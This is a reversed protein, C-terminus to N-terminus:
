IRYYHFSISVVAIEKTFVHEPSYCLILFDLISVEHCKAGCKHNCKLDKQCEVNCHPHGRKRCENCNGQCEHQCDLLHNCPERCRTMEGQASCIINQNHGCTLTETGLIMNCIIERTSTGKVAEMCTMSAEHGCELSVTSVTQTCDGCPEGCSLTCLHQCPKHLKNCPELCGQREHLVEAHCYKSPCAHGCDFIFGCPKKCEPITYWQEPRSVLYVSQPHRPCCTRLHSAIRGKSKLEDIIQQWMPVQAMLAANGVIYFGDRARSCGVNIRNPTRLFGVRNMFNSRVTSLIVVKSEEGQFNDITSLKLMNGIEVVSRGTSCDEFDLFGEIFLAERDKESLWLSCVSKFRQNFAALQGNYPTLVTIDKYEYENSSVLYEVLGAVMEVEFSNSSSNPNASRNNLVDESETHNFWWIRDVM